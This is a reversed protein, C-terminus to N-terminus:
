FTHFVSPAICETNKCKCKPNPSKVKRRIIKIEKKNKRLHFSDNKQSKITLCSTETFVGLFQVAQSSTALTPLMDPVIFATDQM